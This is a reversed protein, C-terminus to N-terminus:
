GFKNKQDYFGILTENIDQLTKIFFAKKIKGGKSHSNDENLFQAVIDLFRGM